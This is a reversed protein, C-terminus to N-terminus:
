DHSHYIKMECRKFHSSIDILTNRYICMDYRKRDQVKSYKSFIYSNNSYHINLQPPNINTINQVPYKHLNHSTRFVINAQLKAERRPRAERVCWITRKLNPITRINLINFAFRPKPCLKLIQEFKTMQPLLVGSCEAGIIPGTREISVIQNVM